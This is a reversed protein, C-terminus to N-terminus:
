SASPTLPLAAIIRNATDEMKGNNEVTITALSEYIKKREDWVRSFSDYTNEDPSLFAPKGSLMIREYVTEKPATIHIVTHGRMIASSREDMPTGGGVSIIAHTSGALSEALLTYELGRFAHRGLATYIERCTLNEGTKQARYKEIARDLDILPLSLRECLLTGITSKGVHKFGILIIM